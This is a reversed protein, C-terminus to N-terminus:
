MYYCDRFHSNSALSWVGLANYARWTCVQWPWVRPKGWTTNFFLKGVEKIIYAEERGGDEVRDGPGIRRGEVRTIRGNGTTVGKSTAPEADAETFWFRQVCRWGGLGTL